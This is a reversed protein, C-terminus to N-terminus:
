VVSKRDGAVTSVVLATAPAPEGYRANSGYRDAAPTKLQYNTNPYIPNLSKRKNVTQTDATEVNLLVTYEMADAADATGSMLYGDAHVLDSDALWAESTQVYTDGQLYKATGWYRNWWDADTVRVRYGFVVRKKTAGETGDAVVNGDGDFSLWGQTKLNDFTYTGDEASVTNHTPEAPEAEEDGEALAATDSAAVGAPVVAGYTDDGALGVTPDAAYAAYADETAWTPDVTWGGAVVSADAADLSEALAFSRELTLQIGEVPHDVATDGEGVTLTGNMGDNDADNFVVGTIKQTPPQIEGADGGPVEKVPDGTVPDTVEVLEKTVEGTDPDTVERLEKKTKYTLWDYTVYRDKAVLMDGEPVGAGGVTKEVVDSVPITVKSAQLDIATTTKDINSYKTNGAREALIIHGSHARTGDHTAGDLTVVSDQATVAIGDLVTEVDSDADSDLKTGALPDGEVEQALPKHFRTLLWAEDDALTTEDTSTYNLEGVEVRYSALYHSGDESTYAAPLNDFTYVGKTSEDTMEQEGIVDKTVPDLVDEM